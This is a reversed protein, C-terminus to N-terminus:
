HFAGKGELYAMAAAEFIDGARPALESGGVFRWPAPLKRYEHRWHAYDLPRKHGPEILDSATTIIRYHPGAELVTEAALLAGTRMQGRRRMSEPLPQAYILRQMAATTLEQGEEAVADVGATIAGPVAAKVAELTRIAGLASTHLSTTLM